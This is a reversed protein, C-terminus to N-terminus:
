RVLFIGLLALVIVIVIVGWKTASMFGDYTERNPSNPQDNNAM